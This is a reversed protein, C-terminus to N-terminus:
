NEWIFSFNENLWTLIV